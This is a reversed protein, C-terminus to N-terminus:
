GSCIESCKKFSSYYNRAWLFWSSLSESLKLVVMLVHYIPLCIPMYCTDYSYLDIDLAWGSLPNIFLSTNLAGVPQPHNSNVDFLRIHPNGAAALYQKDPTVELRNVQQLYMVVDWWLILCAQGCWFWCTSSGNCPFTGASIRSYEREFEAALKFM